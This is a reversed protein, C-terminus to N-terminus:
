VQKTSSSDAVTLETNSVPKIIAQTLGDSYYKKAADIEGLAEFARALEQYTEPSPKLELAQELYTKAKGWLQQNLCLRGATLFWTANGVFKKSNGEIFSLQKNSEDIVVKGYLYLLKEDQLKRINSRLISEAELHGEYQILLEAYCRILEVQKRFAKPIKMWLSQLAETGGQAANRVLLNQWAILQQKELELKNIGSYKKLEPVLELFGKWDGLHRYLKQLLFLVHSHKPALNKLHTLTALAQELQGHNIQQQAQTLGIAIEANPEAMHAQRLYNDRRTDAKQAQAAQAAALLNVLQTDSDPLASILLKEANDWDGESLAIMGKITRQRAKKWRRGGSWSKFRGATNWFRAILHYILIFFLLLLVTVVVLQWLRTQVTYNGVAIVVFGPLDKILPGLLLGFVITLLLVWRLKM